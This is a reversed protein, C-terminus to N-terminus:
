IAVHYVLLNLEIKSQSTGVEYLNINPCITTINKTKLIDVRKGKITKSEM